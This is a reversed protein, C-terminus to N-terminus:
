AMERQKNLIKAGPESNVGRPQSRRDDLSIHNQSLTELRM